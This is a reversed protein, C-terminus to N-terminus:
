MLGRAQVRMRRRHQPWRMSRRPRSRRPGARRRRRRVVTTFVLAGVAAIAIQEFKSTSCTRDGSGKFKYRPGAQAPPKGMDRCSGHWSAPIASIRRFPANRRRPACSQAQSNTPFRGLCQCHLAVGLQDALGRGEEVRDLARAAGRREVPRHQHDALAAGALLQDGLAEVMKGGAPVPRQDHHVARRQGLGQDLGLQEAVLGAGEGARGLGAGAAELLGVAAGQEEVLEGRQRARRLVPQQARDFIALDGPDARLLGIVTSTRMTAAVLSCRGRSTSSPRNRASRSSRSDNSTTVRGGSRWRWLSM